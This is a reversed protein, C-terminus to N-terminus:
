ASVVVEFGRERIREAWAELWGREVPSLRPAEPQCSPRALGYLHIGELPLDEERVRDLLALYAEREEKSPPEGDLAFVCTQLWTPCLECSLALNRFLREVGLSTGNVRAQGAATASDLKFWVEGGLPRLTALAARVVDLHILSGNTIVVVELKGVLELEELVEGVLLAIRGFEAASTPEGNGSFAVDNLRRAEPPAHRELFDGHVIRGLLERLERGLLEVDIPPAKGRTLGPVQCYICRFNCANNPSLNIGVSVGRARRSVVPYVYTMGAAGRDHDDTTLPM